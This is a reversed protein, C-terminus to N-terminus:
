CIRGATGQFPVIRYGLAVGQTCHQTLDQFGQFPPISARTKDREKLAKAISEYRGLAAGQAIVNPGKLAM